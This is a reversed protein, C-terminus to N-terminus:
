RPPCLERRGHAQVISSSRDTTRKTSEKTTASKVRWCEQIALQRHGSQLNGHKLVSNVGVENVGRDIVFQRLSFQKGKM